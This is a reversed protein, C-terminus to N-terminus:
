VAVMCQSGVFRVHDGSCVLCAMSTMNQGVHSVVVHVESM